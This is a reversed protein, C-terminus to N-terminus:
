TEVEINPLKSYRRLNLTWREKWWQISLFHVKLPDGFSRKVELPVHCDRLTQLFGYTKMEREGKVESVFADHEDLLSEPRGSGNESIWRNKRADESIINARILGYPKWPLRDAQSTWGRLGLGPTVPRIFLRISWPRTQQRYRPHHPPVVSIPMGRLTSWSWLFSTQIRTWSKINKGWGSCFVQWKSLIM